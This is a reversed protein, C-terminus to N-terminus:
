WRQRIAKLGTESPAAQKLVADAMQHLISIEDEIGEDRSLERQESLIDALIEKTDSPQGTGGPVRHM